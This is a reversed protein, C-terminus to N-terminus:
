GMNGIEMIMIFISMTLLFWGFGRSLKKGNIKQSLYQGLILGVLTIVLLILLRNWDLEVRGIDGLFGLLMNITIIALSTGAAIHIPCRFLLMLVPVILFGGGAGLFGTILGIGIGYVLLIAASPKAPNDLNIQMPGKLVFVGSCFLLISFLMMLGTSKNLSINGIQLLIDPVAPVLFLRSLFVTVVSSIGFLAVIRLDVQGRRLRIISGVGSISGVLLLSYSTAITPEVGFFYVLLPVTLISGGSGLLGLSIGIFIALIYGIIEM